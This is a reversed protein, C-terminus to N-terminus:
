KKIYVTKRKKIEQLLINQRKAERFIHVYYIIAGIIYPITFSRFADRYGNPHIPVFQGEIYISAFILGMAIAYQSIVMVLPSLRQFYHHTYLIGAGLSTWLIMNFSNSASIDERGTALNLGANVLSLITYCICIAILMEPLNVKKM